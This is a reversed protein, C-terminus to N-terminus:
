LMHGAYAQGKLFDAIRVKLYPKRLLSGLGNRPMKKILASFDFYAKANSPSLVFPPKGEKALIYSMVLTGTRDNGEIFVQPESLIRIYIGAARQWVSEHQHLAHWEALDQIGADTRGYFYHNTAAIHKKYERRKQEDTGCLVRTNLELLHASSGLAFPKIDSELLQNVLAYGSVMNEVVEGDMWERSFGLARSIRPYESQVERLTAEISQLNLRPKVTQGFVSSQM